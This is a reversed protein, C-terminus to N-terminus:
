GSVGGAASPVVLAVTLATVTAPDDLSEGYLERLQGMRYRVTQPHVFLDAAMAERRGQRSLWVRLTEELRSRVAPRLGALPALVQARLDALAEQDASVVLEVLHQETDYPATGERPGARRARALSAAASVWPRTPGIVAGRGSLRRRLAVRDASGVEPIFLVTTDDDVGPIEGTVSLTRPDQGTRVMAAEEAPLLVATLTLPPEWGARDARRRLEDEPEGAALARAMRELLRERARGRTELEDTHGTVSAASLDDIYTFVREAFQGVQAAPMGSAIAERSLFRWAVGAGIRYAALLADMPRGARAEGRGLDYARVTIRSSEVEAREVDEARLSVTLFVDLALRVAERIRQGRPGTFPGAYSPVEDIITAVAADAVEALAGRMRDYSVRDLQWDVREGEGNKM